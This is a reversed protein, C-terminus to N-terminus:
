AFRVVGNQDTAFSLEGARGRAAAGRAVALGADVM